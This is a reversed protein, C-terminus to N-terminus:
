NWALIAFAVLAANITLMGAFFVLWERRSM